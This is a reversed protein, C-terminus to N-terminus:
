SKAGAPVHLGLVETAKVAKGRVSNAISVADALNGAKFSELAEAWEEKVAALGSGKEVM